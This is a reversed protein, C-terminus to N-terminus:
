PRPTSKMISIMFTLRVLFVYSPPLYVDISPDWKSNDLGFPAFCLKEKHVALNSELGPISKHHLTRGESPSSSMMIYDFSCSSISYGSFRKYMHNPYIINLLHIWM